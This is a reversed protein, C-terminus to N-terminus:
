VVGGIKELVSDLKKLQEEDSTKTDIVRKALEVAAKTREQLPADLGFQDNVEGRMVSTLYEMIEKGDAIRKDEGPKSLEQIYNALQPKKLNDAGTRYATRESYGARKASETANGTQVYYECFKKQKPTLKDM